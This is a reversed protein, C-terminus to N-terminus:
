ELEEEKINSLNSVIMPGSIGNSWYPRGFIDTMKIPMERVVYGGEKLEGIIQYKQTCLGFPSEGIGTKIRM